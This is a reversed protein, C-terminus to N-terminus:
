ASQRGQGDQQRPILRLRQEQTTQDELLARREGLTSGGWIGENMSHQLAWSLCAWQVPCAHCVQLAAWTQLQSPGSESIPFFWEPDTDRCAAQDRWRGSEIYM